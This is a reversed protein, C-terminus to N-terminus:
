WLIRKIIDFIINMGEAVTSANSMSEILLVIRTTKKIFIYTDFHLLGLILLSLIGLVICFKRILKNTDSYYSDM